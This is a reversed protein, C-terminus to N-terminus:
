RQSIWRQSPITKFRLWRSSAVLSAVEFVQQFGEQPNAPNSKSLGAIIEKVNESSLKGSRDRKWDSIYGIALAHAIEPRKGLRIEVPHTPDSVSERLSLRSIFASADSKFNYPNISTVGPQAASNEFRVPASTDWQLISGSGDAEAGDDLYRALLTSKGVQSPGRSRLRGNTKPKQNWRTPLGGCTMFVTSGIAERSRM